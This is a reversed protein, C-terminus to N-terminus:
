GEVSPLLGDYRIGSEHIRGRPGYTDGREIQQDLGFCGTARESRNTQGRLKAKLGGDCNHLQKAKRPDKLPTRSTTQRKMQTVHRQHM